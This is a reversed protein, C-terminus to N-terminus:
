EKTATFGNCEAEHHPLAHRKQIAFRCCSKGKATNCFSIALVGRLVM